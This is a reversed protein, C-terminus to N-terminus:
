LAATNYANYNSYSLSSRAITTPYSKYENCDKHEYGNVFGSSSKTRSMETKPGTHGCLNCIAVNQMSM